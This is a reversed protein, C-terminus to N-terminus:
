HRQVLKREKDFLRRNGDSVVSAPNIDRTVPLESKVLGAIVM